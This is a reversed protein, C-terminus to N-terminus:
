NNDLPIYEKNITAEVFYHKGSLRKGDEYYIDDIHRITHIIFNKLLSEINDIVAFFHPIGDEVGGQHIVTNEDVKPFNAETFRWTEKSNLDFYITGNPKLVREIEKIIKNIGETDTHSMVHHSWICDFVSDDFPLDNMDCVKTRIEINEKKQWERLHNIGYDSLDVATVEFGSKAFLIAHRGLGCGLDLISKYGQRKWKLAYYYSEECPELWYEHEAKEWDWEKSIV